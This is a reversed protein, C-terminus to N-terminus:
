KLIIVANQVLDMSFFNSRSDVTGRDEERTAGVSRSSYFEAKSEVVTGKQFFRPLGKMDDGKYFTKPDLAKRMKLIKLDRKEEDTMEARQM